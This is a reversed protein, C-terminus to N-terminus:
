DIVLYRKYDQTYIPENDVPKINTDTIQYKNANRTAQSLNEFARNSDGYQCRYHNMNEAAVPRWTSHPGSQYKLPGDFSRSVASM